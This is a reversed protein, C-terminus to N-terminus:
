SVVYVSAANSSRCPADEENPVNLAPPPYVGILELEPL